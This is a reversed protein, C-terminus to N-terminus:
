PMRLMVERDGVQVRVDRADIAVVTAGDIQDGPRVDYGNIMAERSNGESTIGQLVLALAPGAPASSAATATQKTGPREPVKVTLLDEASKEDVTTRAAAQPAIPIPTPAASQKPADLLSPNTMFGDRVKQAPMIFQRVLFLVVGLVLAVIVAIMVLGTRSSGSTIAPGGGVRYADSEAARAASSQYTADRTRKLAENILSM